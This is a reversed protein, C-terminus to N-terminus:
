NVNNSVHEHPVMLWMGDRTEVLVAHDTILIIKGVEKIGAVKVFDGIKNNM